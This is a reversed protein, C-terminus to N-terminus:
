RQTITLKGDSQFINYQRLAERSVGTQPLAYGSALDYQEGCHPCEAFMSNITCPQKSSQGACHPCALDFAVYGNISVYVVLGGYGYADQAGLPLMWKGNEQYGERDVTIYAGTHEPTFDVFVARTDIVAHVPYTPVSSRWTTGECATLLCVVASLLCWQSVTRIGFHRM